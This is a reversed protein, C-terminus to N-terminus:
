SKSGIEVKWWEIKIKLNGLREIYEKETLEKVKTHLINDAELIGAACKDIGFKM